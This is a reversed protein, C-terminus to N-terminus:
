SKQIQKNKPKEGNQLLGFCWVVCVLWSTGFVGSRLCKGVLWFFWQTTPSGKLLIWCFNCGRINVTCKRADACHKALPRGSLYDALQGDLQHYQSAMICTRLFEIFRFYESSKVFTILLHLRMQFSIIRSSNENLIDQVLSGRNM